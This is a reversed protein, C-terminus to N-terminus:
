TACPQGIYCRERINGSKSGFIGYLRGPACQTSISRKSRGVGHQVVGSSAPGDPCPVLRGAITTRPKSGDRCTCHRRAAFGGEIGNYEWGFRYQCSRCIGAVRCKGQWSCGGIGTKGGLVADVSPSKSSSWGYRACRSAM